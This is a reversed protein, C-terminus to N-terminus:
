NEHNKNYKLFSKRFRLRNDSPLRTHNVLYSYPKATCERCINTSDETGIDAPHNPPIKQIGRRNPIKAIFVHITNLRVDKQVDNQVNRVDQNPLM